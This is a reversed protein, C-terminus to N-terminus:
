KGCLAAVETQNHQEKPPDGLQKGQPLGPLQCREGLQGQYFFSGTSHNAPLVQAGFLPDPIQELSDM